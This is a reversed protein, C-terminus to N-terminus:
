ISFTGKIGDNSDTVNGNIPYRVGSYRMTAPLKGRSEAYYTTLAQGWQRLNSACKIREARTRAMTLAPLLLAVLVGIIGIVVLLEVLTFGSLRSTSSRRMPRDESM